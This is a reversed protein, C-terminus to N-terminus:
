EKKSDVFEVLTCYKNKKSYYYEKVLTSFEGEKYPYDSTRSRWSRYLDVLWATLFGGTIALALFIGLAPIDWLLLGFGVILLLFTMAVAVLFIIFFVSSLFKGGYDCLNKCHNDINCENHVYTIFKYHWSDKNIKM